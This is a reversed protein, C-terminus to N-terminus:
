IFKVMKRHIFQSEGFGWETKWGWQGYKTNKQLFERHEIRSKNTIFLELRAWVMRFPNPNVYTMRRMEATYLKM